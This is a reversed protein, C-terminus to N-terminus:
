ASEEIRQSVFQQNYKLVEMADTNKDYWFEATFMRVGLKWCTSICAHFDVHGTGFPIERYHGVITEKIHAAAIHGKGRQIDELVDHGYLKSANTLNGIDPYVQLYPSDVLEVYNMAKTVTDMFATEMTEFGLIVSKKSAMEVALGLNRAFREKTVESGKEYYVDYGALQIIRIGLQDAMDIAHEMIQLSRAVTQENNSGLPYKRHGSLCMTRIPFGTVNMAQKIDDIEAQNNLRSLKEDTEDISIELFDFGSVKAATLKEIWSWSSPMAKEYLGLQYKKM